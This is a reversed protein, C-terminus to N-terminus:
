KFVLTKGAVSLTYRMGLANGNTDIKYCGAATGTQAGAANKLISNVCGFATAATDAELTWTSETTSLVSTKAANAYLTLIGVPGSDGVKAAVPFTGTTKTQVAYTGDPYRAGQTILPNVSYYNQFSSAALVAGNRKITLSELAKKRVVGEFVEDTAPTISLALSWTDAGDVATGSLSVGNTVAKTYAADLPFTTTISPVTAAPTSDGGGGCAALLASTLSLALTTRLKM